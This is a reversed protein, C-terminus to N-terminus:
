KISNSVASSAWLNHFESSYRGSLASRHSAEFVRTKSASSAQNAKLERITDIPPLISLGFM